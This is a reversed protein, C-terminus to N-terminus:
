GGIKSLRAAIDNLQLRYASSADVSLAMGPEPSWIVAGGQGAGLPTEWLTTGGVTVPQLKPLKAAQRFQELTAEGKFRELKIWQGARDKWTQGIECIKKGSFTHTLTRTADFHLGNPLSLSQEAPSGAPVAPTLQSCDLKPLSPVTLGPVKPTPITTPVSTPASVGTPVGTPVKSLCTPVSAPVGSPVATPLHGAVKAAKAAIAGPVATGFTTPVTTPVKGTVQKPLGTPVKGLVHTPVGTPVNAPLKPAATTPLCDPHSPLSPNVPVSGASPLQGHAATLGGSQSYGVTAYTVGGATVTGVAAASVLAIKLSIM